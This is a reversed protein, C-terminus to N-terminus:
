LILVKFEGVAEVYYGGIIKPDISTNYAKLWVIIRSFGDICGNLCIGFPKLKDYSDMHWIYNPGKAFYSRRTLRRSRRHVTGEPDLISLLHRIEEKRVQLGNDLCKQYMWRYGHLSGSGGLERRLYKVTDGLDAYNSRRFLGKRKLIRKFHRLSLIIGHKTSLTFVIDEYCLGLNFYFKILEIKTPM